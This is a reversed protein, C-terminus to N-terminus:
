LSPLICKLMKALHWFAYNRWLVSSSVLLGVLCLMRCTKPVQNTFLHVQYTSLHISKIHWAFWDVILSCLSVGLWYLSCLLIDLSHLHLGHSKYNWVYVYINPTFVWLFYSLYLFCLQYHSCTHRGQLESYFNGIPNPSVVRACQFKGWTCAHDGNQAKCLSHGCQLRMQFLKKMTRQNSQVITIISYQFYFKIWIM